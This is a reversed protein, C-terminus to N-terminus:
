GGLGEIDGGDGRHAGRALEADGEIGIAVRDGGFVGALRQGEFGIGIPETEIGLLLENGAMGAAVIAMLVELVGIVGFRKKLLPFLSAVLLEEQAKEGERRVGVGVVSLECLPPDIGEM